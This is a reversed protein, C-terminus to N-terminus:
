STREGHFSKRYKVTVREEKLLHLEPMIKELFVERIGLKFKTADRSVRLFIRHM